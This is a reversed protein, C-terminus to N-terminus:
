EQTGQDVWRQFLGREYDSLGGSPPMTGAQIRANAREASAVADSYTDLDIGVPAGNRDAGQRYSAHCGTCHGELLPQIHDTYSVTDPLQQQGGDTFPDRKEKCAVLCLAALGFVVASYLWRSM